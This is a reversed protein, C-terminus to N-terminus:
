RELETIPMHKYSSTVHVKLDLNIYFVFRLVCLKLM